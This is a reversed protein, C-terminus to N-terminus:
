INEWIWHFGRGITGFVSKNEGNYSSAQEYVPEKASPMDVPKQYDDYAVPTSAPASVMVPKSSSMSTKDGYFENMTENIEKHRSVVENDVKCPEPNGKNDRCLWEKLTPLESAPRKSMEQAKPENVKAVVMPADDAVPAPVYSSTMAQSKYDVSSSLQDVAQNINEQRNVAATAMMKDLAKKAKITWPDGPLGLDVRKQFYHIAKATNGQNWYLVGLNSYAPLFKYDVKIAALYKEEAKELLGVEEYIVGLSNLADVEDPKLALAAEYYSMAETRNGAQWAQYGKQMQEQVKPNDKWMWGISVMCLVSLFFLQIGRM